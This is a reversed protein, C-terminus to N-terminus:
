HSFDPNLVTHPYHPTTTTGPRPPNEAERLAGPEVWVGDLLLAHPTAPTGRENRHIQGVVLDIAAGGMKEPGTDIAPSNNCPVKLMRLWATPAKAEGTISQMWEEVHWEAILLIDPDNRKLWRFFIEPRNPSALLPQLRDKRPWHLQEALYAGVWKGEVRENMSPSLVLGIRHHGKNRLQRCALQGGQYLNAAVRHMIPTHLSTGITVGTLGKMDLPYNMADEPVPPIVVGWQSRSLLVQRLRAPTTGDRAVHHVQIQYGLEDARQRAGDLMLQFDTPPTSSRDDPWLDLWAIHYPDERRRRTHLHAMLASVMPNPRYGLDHALQQIERRRNLPITPDDRLAKSVTSTAVGAAKAVAAM